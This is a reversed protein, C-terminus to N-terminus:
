LFPNIIKMKGDVTQNNQLDESYLIQCGSLLAAGIIKSDFVQFSHKRYLTLAKSVTVSDETIIVKDRM